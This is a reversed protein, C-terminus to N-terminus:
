AAEQRPIDETYEYPFLNMLVSTINMAENSKAALDWDVDGSRAHPENFKMGVRENFIYKRFTDRFMDMHGTRSKINENVPGGYKENDITVVWLRINRVIEDEPSVYKYSQGVMVDDESDEVDSGQKNILKEVGAHNEAYMEHYRKYINTVLDEVTEIKNHGIIQDYDSTDNVKSKSLMKIYDLKNRYARQMRVSKKDNKEFLKPFLDEIDLNDFGNEFLERVVEQTVM